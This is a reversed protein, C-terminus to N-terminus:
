RLLAIHGEFAHPLGVLDLYWIRYLYIGDKAYHDGGNINGLWPESPEDTHFIVEGWRNFIEMKYESAGIVTPLWVDDDGDNNPTFANPAFFVTGEVM